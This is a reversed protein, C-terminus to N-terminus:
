FPVYGPNQTLLSNTQGEDLPMPALLDHADITIGLGPFEHALNANMISLAKTTGMRLLDHWRQCEFALEVQREHQLKDIFAGPTAASIPGLNARQRVQNILGYAEPTEGLAEALMLMADAYRLVPFDNNADNGVKVGPDKFKLIYPINNPDYGISAALRTDGPEYSNILDKTPTNPAVSGNTGGPVGLSNPAFFNWFPSGNLPPLFQLEFISEASNKTNPNWLDAYNPLLSYPSGTFVVNRLATVAAANDGKQLLVKGLLAYAAYSTARGVDAGSYNKPLGAAATQLDAIIQGYVSDVSSRALSNNGNLSITEKLRLPVGGYDQLLLFYVQARVFLAEGVLQAKVAADMDVDPARGIVANCLNICYYAGSWMGTISTNGSEATFNDVAKHETQRGFDQNTNDSRTEELNYLALESGTYMNRQAAYIGYVAANFDAQTKYFQEKPIRDVPVVDLFDKKCSSLVSLLLGAALWMKNSIINNISM